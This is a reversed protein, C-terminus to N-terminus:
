VAEGQPFAHAATTGVGYMVDTRLVYKRGAVVPAGEHLQLHAFGLAMGIEPRVAMRVQRDEGYFRTEGGTFDANLYVMFTLQSRENDGRSFYGDFHPAFKQSVDYRYFRFRENLGLAKWDDINRPILPQAREWLREALAPDDLILRANDRIDRNMVLGASTTITADDYGAQESRAVFGACEEPTLFDRIVFLRDGDLCQKQMM